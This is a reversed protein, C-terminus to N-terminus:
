VEYPPTLGTGNGPLDLRAMPANGIRVLALTGTGAPVTVAFRNEGLGTMETRVPPRPQCAAQHLPVSGAPIGAAQANAEPEPPGGLVVSLLILVILGGVTRGLRRFQQRM